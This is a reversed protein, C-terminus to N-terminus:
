VRDRERLMSKISALDKLVPVMSELMFNKMPATEKVVRHETVMSIEEQLSDVVQEAADPSAGLDVLSCYFVNELAMISRQTWFVLLRGFNGILPM